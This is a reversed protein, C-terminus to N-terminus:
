YVRKGFLDIFAITDSQPSPVSMSYISVQVLSILLPDRFIFIFGQTEELVLWYIMRMWVSCLAAAPQRLALHTM